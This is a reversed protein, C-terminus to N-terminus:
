DDSTIGGCMWKEKLNYYCIAWYTDNMKEQYVDYLFTLSGHNAMSLTVKSIRANKIEMKIGKM